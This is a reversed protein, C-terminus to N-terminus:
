ASRQVMRDLAATLAPLDHEVVSWVAASDIGLYGHVLVNRFGALERWPVGPETAKLVESLRQSSETLVQLNRVVADRVMRSADFKARDAGTYESILSLCELMHALLARDADAGPNM